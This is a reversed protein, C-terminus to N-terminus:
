KHVSAAREIVPAAIVISPPQVACQCRHSWKTPKCLTIEQVTSLLAQHRLKAGDNIEDARWKKRPQERDDNLSVYRRM